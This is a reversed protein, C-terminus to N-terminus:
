SAPPAAPPEISLRGVAVRGDESRARLRAPEAKFVNAALQRLIGAVVNQDGLTLVIWPIPGSRWEAPALRIPQNLDKSLRADIEPSVSAWLVAGVPAVVGTQKAQAEVIAFQGTMIAPGVLWELDQIANLKHAPSHMLLTVIEGFSAAVLKANMARQRAVEPSLDGSAQPPSAQGPVEISSPAAAPAAPPEAATAAGDSKGKFWM